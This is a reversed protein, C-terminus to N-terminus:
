EAEAAIQAQIEDRKAKAESNGRSAALKYWKLAEDRSSNKALLMIANMNGNNAYEEYIKRSAPGEVGVENFFLTEDTAIAKRYWSLAEDTNQTVIDGNDYLRALILIAEFNGETSLTYIQRFFAKRNTTALAFFDRSKKYELAEKNGKEIAKQLWLDSYDKNGCKDYVKALELMANEDGSMAKQKLANTQGQILSAELIILVM